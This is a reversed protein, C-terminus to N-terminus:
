ATRTGPAGSMRAGSWRAAISPVGARTPTLPPSWRQRRAAEARWEGHPERNAQAKMAAAVAAAIQEDLSRQRM